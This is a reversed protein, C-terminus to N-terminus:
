DAKALVREGPRVVVFARLDRERRRMRPLNIGTAACASALSRPMTPRSSAARRPSRFRNSNQALRRAPSRTASPSRSARVAACASVPAAAWIPSAPSSPGRAMAAVMRDPNWRAPAAYSGGQDGTVSWLFTRSLRGALLGPRVPKVVRTCGAGLCSRAHGADDVLRAVVSSPFQSSIVDHVCHVSSQAVTLRDWRTPPLRRLSAGSRSM